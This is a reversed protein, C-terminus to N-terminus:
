ARAQGRFDDAAASLAQKATLQGKYAQLLYGSLVTQLIATDASQHQSPVDDIVDKYVGFLRQGDFYPDSIASLRPDDFVSRLTPLYGLDRYRKVQQDANLYTSLVLDVGAQSLPKKRIAAFGTGGGVSTTRGGGAFVPLKRVKWTGKQEPVNPKIGYSAYWSPMDVGVISSSKLGSQLSPGYMDAVTAIAGSQVGKAIFALTDEAEPTEITLNGDVDWLDGGRQLLMIQYSQVAGGPDNTAVAHMSVNKSPNLKAFAAEFEEWTALDDPIGLKDFQEPRYYYVCLPTDSDLAYLKGDKSFPTLRAGILDDKYDAISPSLDVLLEKAIDGRLTRAFAGIELGVVDPTGTNAVAQAILKTPIDAAAIKTVDLAYRYTTAADATPLAETFFKVYGDDHTWFSLDAAGSTLARSGPGTACASLLAGLAVTGGAAAGWRFLDRRTPPSPTM